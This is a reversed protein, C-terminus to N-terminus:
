TNRICYSCLWLGEGNRSRYATAANKNCKQCLLYDKGSHTLLEIEARLREIEAQQEQWARALVKCNQAIYLIKESRAQASDDEIPALIYAAVETVTPQNNNM